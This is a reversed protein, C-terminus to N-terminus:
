ELGERSINLSVNMFTEPLGQDYQMVRGDPLKCLDLNNTDVCRLDELLIGGGSECAIQGGLMFFVWAGFVMVGALLLIHWKKKSSKQETILGKFFVRENKPTQSRKM